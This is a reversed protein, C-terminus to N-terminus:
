LKQNCKIGPDFVLLLLLIIKYILKTLRPLLVQEWEEGHLYTKQLHPNLHFPVDM